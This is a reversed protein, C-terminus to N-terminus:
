YQASVAYICVLRQLHIILVKLTEKNVLPLRLILEDIAKFKQRM